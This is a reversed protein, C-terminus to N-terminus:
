KKEWCWYEHFKNSASSPIIIGTQQYEFKQSIHIIAHNDTRHRTLVLIKQKNQKQIELFKKRLEKAIGTGAYAPRVILERSWVILDANKQRAFEALRMGREKELEELTPTDWWMAGVVIKIFEEVVCTFGRKASDSTWRRDVEQTSLSEFWPAQSFAMQYTEKIKKEDDKQFFRIM